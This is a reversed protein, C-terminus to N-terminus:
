RWQWVDAAGARGIDADESFEHLVSPPLLAKGGQAERHRVRHVLRKAPQPV